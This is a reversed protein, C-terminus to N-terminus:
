RPGVHLTRSLALRTAGDALTLVVRAPHRHGLRLSFTARSHHDVKARAVPWWGFREKLRLQLMVTAGPSAPAVSTSVTVSRGRTRGSAALKRDLVLLQTPTSADSGSVARYTATSRPVVDTAFTGDADVTTQAAPRFGAGADAEITVPTSAPLAARGHLAYARGPAGPERPADLLIRRVNVVGRMFVHLKCYYPVSGADDFRHSYTDSIALRASSWTGDDASVTHDRVSDNSWRVTDGVLVDVDAPGYASASMSVGAAPAAADMGHGDHAMQAPAAAAGLALALAAFALAARTM